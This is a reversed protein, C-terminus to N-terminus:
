LFFEEILYSVNSLFQKIIPFHEYLFDFLSQLLNYQKVKPMSVYLIESWRSEHDENDKAKVSVSYSGRNSWIHSANITFGSPFPGLWGSNSGDDWDFLYYIDDNENDITSTSYEFSTGPKGKNIGEPKSPINPAGPVTYNTSQLYFEVNTYNNPPSVIEIFNGLVPSYFNTKNVSEIKYAEYKGIGAVSVNVLDTCSVDTMENFITDEIPFSDPVDEPLGPINNLGPLNIIGNIHVVSPNTVWEKGVYLPFDIITLPPTFTVNLDIDIIVPVISVKLTGDIYLSANKISLDKDVILFGNMITNQLGGRIRPAGTTKFSFDGNIDGKVTFNFTDETKEQILLEINYISLDIVANTGEENMYVNFSFFYEWKDGVKWIPKDAYSDFTNLGLEISKKYITDTNKTISEVIPTLSVILLICILFSIIKRKMRKGM